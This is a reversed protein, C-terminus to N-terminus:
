LCLEMCTVGAYKRLDPKPSVGGNLESAFLDSERWIVDNFETGNFRASKISTRIIDISTVPVDGVEIGEHSPASYLLCGFLNRRLVGVRDSQRPPSESIYRRLETLGRTIKSDLMAFSGIFRLIEKPINMNKYRIDVTGLLHEKLFRGVFFEMFSRHIFRFMEEHTRTIFTCLQLDTGVEEASASAAAESGDKLIERNERVVEIVEEYTVELRSRDYMALAIAEAFDSRQQKTLFHRAQGKSWDLDFNLDTYTEYLTAPNRLNTNDFFSPGSMLVTDKMMSLLIPKSMLDRLDYIALLAGKVEVAGCWCKARFESDFIALYQDIQKESFGSLEVSQTKLKAPPLASRKDVYKRHLSTYLQDVGEQAQAETRTWPKSFTAVKEQANKIATVAHEYEDNTVFYAPRCTLVSPSGGALLPSLDLFHSLRKASDVQPSMEDFGDLLVLFGHRSLEAWFLSLPIERSFQSKLSNALFVSLDLYKSYDKLEFLVPKLTTRRGLFLKAFRYRLRHLITTKGAGYDGLISFFMVPSNPDRIMESLAQEVNRHVHETGKEIGDITVYEAFISEQEYENVIQLYVHKLAFLESELDDQTLLVVRGEAASKAHASFSTNTVMVAKTAKATQRALEFFNMFDFVDQNAVSGTTKYKCEILLRDLGQGPNIKSAIIDVQQGAVVTNANVVFGLSEYLQAVYEEFARGESQTHDASTPRDKM